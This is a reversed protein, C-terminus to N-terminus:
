DRKRHKTLVKAIRFAGYLYLFIAFILRVTLDLYQFSDSVLIYTALFFFGLVILITFYLNFKEM